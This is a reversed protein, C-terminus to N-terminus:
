ASYGDPDIVASVCAERARNSGMGFIECVVAWNAHRANWAKSKLRRVNAIVVRIREAEPATM